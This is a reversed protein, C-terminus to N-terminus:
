FGVLEVAIGPHAALFRRVAEGHRLTIERELGALDGPREDRRRIAKATELGAELRRRFPAEYAVFGGPGREVAGGGDTTVVALDIGDMSTGSMLGLACKLSM